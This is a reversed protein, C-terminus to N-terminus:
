RSPDSSSSPGAGPDRRAIHRSDIILTASEDDGDESSTDSDTGGRPLPPNSKAVADPHRRPRPLYAWDLHLSGPPMAVVGGTAGPWRHRDTSPASSTSPQPEAPQQQQAPPPANSVHGALRRSNIVFTVSEDDEDDDDDSDFEFSGPVTAGPQVDTAAHMAAVTLDGSNVVPAASSTSRATPSPQVSPPVLPVGPAFIDPRGSLPMGDTPTSDQMEAVADLHHGDRDIRPAPRRDESNRGQDEGARKM